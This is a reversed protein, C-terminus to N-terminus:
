VALHNKIKLALKELVKARKKRGFFNFGRAIYGFAVQLLDGGTRPVLHIHFHPIHQNAGKGDNVLFNTGALGLGSARQAKVIKNCLPLLIQLASDSLNELRKAHALSVVLIHGPRMPFIDLLAVFHSDRYVVHAPAQGKVIQCFICNDNTEM